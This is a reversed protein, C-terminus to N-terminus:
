FACSISGFTDEPAFPRLLCFSGSLSRTSSMDMTNQYRFTRKALCPPNGSSCIRRTARWHCRALVGSRQPWALRGRSDPVLRRPRGNRPRTISSIVNSCLKVSFACPKSFKRPHLAVSALSTRDFSSPLSDLMVSIYSQPSFCSFTGDDCRSM